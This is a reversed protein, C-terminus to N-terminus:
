VGLTEIEEPILEVEEQYEHLYLELDDRAAPDAYLYPGTDEIEPSGTSILYLHDHGYISNQGTIILTVLVAIFLLVYTEYRLILSM